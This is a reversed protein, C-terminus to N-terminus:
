DKPSVLDVRGFFANIAPYNCTTRSCLLEISKKIDAFTAVDTCLMGIRARDWTEKDLQVVGTDLTHIGIAGLPGKDAFWLQDNIQIQNCGITCLIALICLVRM